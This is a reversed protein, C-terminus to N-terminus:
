RRRAERPDVLVHTWYPGALGVGHHTYRCNILNANHGPSRRWETFAERGTRPGRTLNEAAASVPIRAAQLRDIVGRGLADLHSFYDNEAMDRSHALAVGAVREDWVLRADCGADRRAEEALEIFEAVAVDPSARPPATRIPPNAPVVACATAAVLVFWFASRTGLTVRTAPM